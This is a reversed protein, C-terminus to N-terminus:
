DMALELTSGIHAPPERGQLAKKLFFLFIWCCLHQPSSQRREDEERKEQRKREIAKDYKPECLFNKPEM